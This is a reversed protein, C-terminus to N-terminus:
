DHIELYKIYNDASGLVVIMSRARDTESQLALGSEYARSVPYLLVGAVLTAIALAFCILPVGQVAADKTAFVIVLLVAALFIAIILAIM